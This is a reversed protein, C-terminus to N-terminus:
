PLFGSCWPLGCRRGAFLKWGCIVKAEELGGMKTPGAAARGGRTM